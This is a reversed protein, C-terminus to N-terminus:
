EKKLIQLNEMSFDVGVETGIKLKQLQSQSDQQISSILTNEFEVEYEIFAGLFSSGYFIGKFNSDKLNLNVAEPRIVLYVEEAVKIDEFANEKNIELSINQLSVVVVRDTVKLVNVNIFNAKGIFDAVFVNNPKNYIIKPTDVQIIKGKELIVIRDSISLAEEQDHTVYIATIGFMQQIKKIEMRTQIRLKEDINSLPEDFLIIQPKLVLARALAVRQQQGGSLEHPYRNEFGALNVLQLAMAVDNNILKEKINSAELGFAINEFISLNPFLAYDQFVMPMKREVPLLHNIPKEGLFIEGSDVSEFGALMRLITTKGSGSPGIITIFESRKITLSINDIATVRQGQEDTFVKVINKLTLSDWKYNSISQGDM